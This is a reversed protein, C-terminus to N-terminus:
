FYKHVIFDGCVKRVNVPLEEGEFIDAVSV